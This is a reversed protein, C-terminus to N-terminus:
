NARSVVAGPNSRNIRVGAQLVLPLDFYYTVGLLVSRDRHGDKANFATLGVTTILKRHEGWKRNATLDVRMSPFFFGGSSSAIGASGYWREGFQRTHGLALLTGSDDFRTAHVLDANWWNGGGTNLTGRVFQDRWGQFGATLTHRLAGAEIMGGDDAAAVSNSCGLCAALVAVRYSFVLPM